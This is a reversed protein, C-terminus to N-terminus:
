FFQKVVAAACGLVAVAAGSALSRGPRPLDELRPAPDGSVFARLRRRREFAVAEVLDRTAAM